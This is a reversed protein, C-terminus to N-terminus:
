ENEMGEVAKRMADIVMKNEIALRRILENQYQEALKNLDNLITKKGLGELNIELTEIVKKLYEYAVALEFNEEFLPTRNPKTLLPRGGTLYEAHVDLYEALKLVDHPMMEEYRMCKKFNAYSMGLVKCIQVAKFGKAKYLDKIRQKDIKIKSKRNAM